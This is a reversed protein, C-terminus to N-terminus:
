VRPPARAQPTETRHIKALAPLAPASGQPTDLQGAIEPAPPATADLLHLACDPCIHAPGVPDGNADVQLTVVGAGSCIVISGAATGHGRAVAMASSTLAVILALCIGLISNLRAM